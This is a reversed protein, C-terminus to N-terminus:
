PFLMQLSYGIVCDRIIKFQVHAKVQRSNRDSLLTGVTMTNQQESPMVGTIEGCDDSSVVLVYKSSTRFINKVMSFCRVFRHAIAIM